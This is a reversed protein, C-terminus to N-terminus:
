MKLLDMIKFHFPQDEILYREMVLTGMSILILMKKLTVEGFLCNKLTSDNDHSSSASLKYVIYINVVKGHTYAIKPQKLCSATFKVRTKTGYYSLAPNLSNNSTAPPKINEASLRKSKWSSVYDINTIVKFYNYLPQFVLHKQTGDEEFHSKGIVYNSNFRKLKKLENKVLLNKTKNATIKRDLSSLKTYFGTKTILNAQALRANFVDAALTNIELTTIYTM